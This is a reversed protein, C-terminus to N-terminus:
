LGKQGWPTPPGCDELCSGAHERKKAQCLFLAVRGIEEWVTQMNWKPAPACLCCLNWGHIKWITRKDWVCPGRLLRRHGKLFFPTGGGGDGVYMTKEVEREIAPHLWLSLTVVLGRHSGGPEKQSPEKWEKKQFKCREMCSRPWGEWTVWKSTEKSPVEGRGGVQDGPRQRDQWLRQGASHSDNARGDIKVPQSNWSLLSRIKEMDMVKYKRSCHKICLLTSTLIFLHPISGALSIGAKVLPRMLRRRPSIVARVGDWRRLRLPSTLPQSEKIHYLLRWM